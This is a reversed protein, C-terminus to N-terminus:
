FSVETSVYVPTNLSKRGTSDTAIFRLEYRGNEMYKNELNKGNWTFTYKGKKQPLENLSPQKLYFVQYNDPNFLRVEVKADESLTYQVTLLNADKVKLLQTSQKNIIIEPALTDIQLPTSAPDAVNGALDTVQFRVTYLGEPLLALKSNLGNWQVQNAGARFWQNQALSALVNGTEGLVSITLVAPESLNFGITTMKRHNEHTIPNSTTIGSVVPKTRDVTLRGFQSVAAEVSTSAILNFRYDGEALTTTNINLAGTGAATQVNNVSTLAITDDNANLVRLTLRASNLLKYRITTVKSSQSGVLGTIELGPAAPAGNAPTTASVAVSQASKNGRVDVALVTFAYTTAPSLSGVVATPTTSTGSLTGDRYIEYSAVGLNDTAPEWVLTVQDTGRKSVRLGRPVTPALTDPPTQRSLNTSANSRNGAADYAKVTLQYSTNFNAVPLDTLLLRTGKTVTALLTQSNFVEYGVVAVNDTSPSWYLDISRPTVNLTYLAQPATPASTDAATTVTSVASLASRNGSSDLARVTVKYSTAPKLGTVTAQTQTADAVKKGNLLIEYGTVSMNDTSATWSLNFQHMQVDSTQLGTPTTPLATDPKVTVVIRAQASSPQENYHTKVGLMVKQKPKLGSIAFSLANTKGLSVGDRFVEYEKVTKGTAAVPASWKLLLSQTTV